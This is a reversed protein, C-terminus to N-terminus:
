AELLSSADKNAISVLTQCNMQLLVSIVPASKLSKRDFGAKAVFGTALDGENEARGLGLQLYVKKGKKDGNNPRSATWGMWVWGDVIWREEGLL